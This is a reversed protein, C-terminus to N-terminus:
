GVRLRFQRPPRALRELLPSVLENFKELTLKYTFDRDEALCEVYM